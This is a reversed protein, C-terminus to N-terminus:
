NLSRRYNAPLLYKQLVATKLPKAPDLKQSELFDKFQFFSCKQFVNCKITINIKKVTYQKCTELLFLILTFNARKPLKKQLPIQFFRLM